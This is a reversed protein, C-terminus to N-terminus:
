ITLLSSYPPFKIGNKQVHVIYKYLIKHYVVGSVMVLYINLPLTFLSKKKKWSTCPSGSTLKILM